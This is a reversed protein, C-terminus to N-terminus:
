SIELGTVIFTNNGNESYVTVIDSAALAIGDFKVVSGPSVVLDYVLYDANVLSGAGNVGIAVRITDSSSSTNSVYINCEAQISGPVTYIDTATAASPQSQGLIKGSTAM